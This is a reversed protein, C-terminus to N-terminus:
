TLLNTKKDSLICCIKVNDKRKLVGQETKDKYLAYYDIFM